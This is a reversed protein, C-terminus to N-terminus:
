QINFSELIELNKDLRQVLINNGEYKVALFTKRPMSRKKLAQTGESSFYQVGDLKKRSDGNALNNCFVLKVDHKEFLSNLQNRDESSEDSISHILIVKELAQDSELEKELWEHQESDKEISAFYDLVLFKVNGYTLSFYCDNLSPYSYRLYKRLLQKNKDNSGITAVVPLNIENKYNDIFM